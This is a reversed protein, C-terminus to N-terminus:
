FEAGIGLVFGRFSADELVDGNGIGGFTTNAPAVNTWYQWEYGLNANLSGWPLERAVEYGFTLELQSVPDDEADVDTLVTGTATNIHQIDHEGLLVSLRSRGYVKGIGWKRKAQVALTAGYGNFDSDVERNIANNTAGQNFALWRVGIAGELETKDTVQWQQFLELDYYDSDVKVKDNNASDTSESDDYRWYRGRIGIGQSGVYGLELRPTYDNGFDATGGAADAAGGEQGYSMFTNELRAFYAPDREETVGPAVVPPAASPKVAALARRAEALERKAAEAERKANQTEDQLEQIMQYLEENSPVDPSVDAAASSSLFLLPLVLLGM